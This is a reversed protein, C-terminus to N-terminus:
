KLWAYSSEQGLIFFPKTKTLGNTPFRNKRLITKITQVAEDPILSRFYYRGFFLKFALLKLRAWIRKSRKRFLTKTEYCLVYRVVTALSGLMLRARAERLETNTLTYCNVCVTSQVTEARTSKLSTDVAAGRALTWAVRASGKGRPWINTLNEALSPM